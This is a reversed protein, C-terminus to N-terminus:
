CSGKIDVSPAAGRCLGGHHVAINRCYGLISLGIMPELSARQCIMSWIDKTSPLPPHTSTYENPQSTCGSFYICNFEVCHVKLAVSKCSIKQLSKSQPGIPTVVLLALPDANSSIFSRTFNPLGTELICHQCIFNRCVVSKDLVTM